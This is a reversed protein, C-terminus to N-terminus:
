LKLKKLLTLVICNHVKQLLMPLKHREFLNNMKISTKLSILMFDNMIYEKKNFMQLIYALDM